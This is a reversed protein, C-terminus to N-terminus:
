RLERVAAPLQELTEKLRSAQDRRMVLVRGNASVVVLDDVGSLVVPQGDSWVINNASGIAIAGGVLVNGAPDLSRIRALAEWTGIDDWRFDGSVVAVADSRELLGEDITTPPVAGFFAAPGSRVLAPLHRAVEPTHRDLEALAVRAQWAFLGSNWLAGQQILAEAAPRNPKETFRRVKAAPLSPLAAGPVIYGYGTEPRSPTVGVLVLRESAEAVGLAADAVRRFAARDPVYWDAHLSLLVADPDRRRAEHTAWALAPATSKAEPEVLVNESPLGLADALPGALAPGTVVLIRERDILGELRELTDRATSRDGALPLLQKPHTPSSLPWFRTGSGGALIVAWRM